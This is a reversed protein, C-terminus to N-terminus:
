CLSNFKKLSWMNVVYSVNFGLLNVNQQLFLLAFKLASPQRYLDFTSVGLSLMRIPRLSHFHHGSSKCGKHYICLSFLTGQHTHKQWHLIFTKAFPCSVPLPLSFHRGNITCSRNTWTGTFSAETSPQSVKEGAQTRLLLHTILLVSHALKLNNSLM